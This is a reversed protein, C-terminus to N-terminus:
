DTKKGWGTIILFIVPLIMWWINYNIIFKAIKSGHLIMEQKGPDMFSIISSIILAGNLFSFGLVEFISSNSSSRGEIGSKATIFVITILFIILQITFSSASSRIFLQNLFAKEGMFFQSIPDVLITALVLGVYISITTVVVRDRQMLFGYATLAIFFILIVLDWSLSGGM